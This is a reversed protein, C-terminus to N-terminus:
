ASNSNRPISIAAAVARRGQGGGGNSTSNSNDQALLTGASFCLATAIGSIGLIKGVKM